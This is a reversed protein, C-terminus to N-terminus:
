AGVPTMRRLRDADELVSLREVTGTKKNVLLVPADMISFNDDRDVLWQRAGAIVHWHTDDEYGAPLTVLTGQSRKWEPRLAGFVIRRAEEFTVAM